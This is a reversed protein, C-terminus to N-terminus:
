APPLPDLHALKRSAQVVWVKTIAGRADLELEYTLRSAVMPAHVERELMFLTRGALERFGFRMEGLHFRSIRLFFTAVKAAGVVPLRAAYSEGAGDSLLRVEKAFLAELAPADGAALCALFTELATRHKARTEADFTPREAEYTRLRERARHHLVKVAGETLALVEAVRKVPEGVVDLLVLVARQKSTLAELALLFATSVSEFLEYRHETGAPEELVLREDNADVPSPLWPGIYGQVKRRRLVDRALNVTIRVLWAELEGHPPHQLLREYAGQVVEDADAAVGTMRLAIGWLKRRHREAAEFHQAKM